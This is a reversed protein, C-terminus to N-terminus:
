EAHLRSFKFFWFVSLAPRTNEIKPIMYEVWYQM